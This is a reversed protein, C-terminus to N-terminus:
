YDCITAIRSYPVLFEAARCPPNRELQQLPSLARKDMMSASTLETDLRAVKSKEKSSCSVTWGESCSEM